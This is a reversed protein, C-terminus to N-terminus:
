KLIWKPITIFNSTMEIIKSIPIIVSTNEEIFLRISKESLKKYKLYEFKVIENKQIIENITSNEIPDAVEYAQQFSKYANGMKAGQEGGYMQVISYLLNEKIETEISHLNYQKIIGAINKVRAIENHRPGTHTLYFNCLKETAKKVYNEVYDAGETITITEITNSRVNETYVEFDITIPVPNQRCFFFDSYSIYLPQSLVFQRLDLYSYYDDLKLTSILKIANLKLTNYHSELPINDNVLIIAKVGKQSSSITALLTCELKTFKLLLEKAKQPTELKDFDFAIINSNHTVISKNNRYDFTGYPTFFPQLNKLEIKKEPTEAKLIDSTLIEIEKSEYIEFLEKYNIQKLPKTSTAGGKFYSFNIQMQKQKITIVKIV